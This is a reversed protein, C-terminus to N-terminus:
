DFDGGRAGMAAEMMAEVNAGETDNAGAENSPGIEVTKDPRVRIVPVVGADLYVRLTERVDQWPIRVRASVPRTDRPPPPPAGSSKM